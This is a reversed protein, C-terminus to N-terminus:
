QNSSHLFFSVLNLYFNRAFMTQRKFINCHLLKKVYHTVNKFLDGTVELEIKLM